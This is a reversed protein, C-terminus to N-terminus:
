KDESLYIGNLDNFSVRTNLITYSRHDIPLIQNVVYVLASNQVFQVFHLVHVTNFHVSHLM